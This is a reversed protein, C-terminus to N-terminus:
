GETTSSPDVSLRKRSLTGEARQGMWQSVAGAGLVILALMAPQRYRISSVFVMHILSFYVAPLWCLVYPWGRRITAAAGLLASLVIPVYFVAMALRIPWSSMGADNPWVNWMRGLKVLALGVVRGPHERAWALAEQRLRHDLRVEFSEEAAPSGADGRGREQAAFSEVFSMESAGSAQPNWGDYLSAGVQLTTPVFRGTVRANRVWWPAMALVLGALMAAGLLLHRRRPRGAALGVALAFPLFLLWSPRVLSALGAALGATLALGGARWPVPSEWAAMWLGLNLLMLPCFPAESLVLVGVAISGPYLAAVAAALLGARGDFLRWALWGVGGVALTDLVASLARAWFVPPQDGGLLFIPALLLPYGPTRFVRARDQGLQYPEGQAITGALDWYSQSDGFLFRGEIRTQWWAGAALRLGLAVVLVVALLKVAPSKM